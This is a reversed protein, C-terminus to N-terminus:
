ITSFSMFNWARKTAMASAKLLILYRKHRTHVTDQPSAAHQQQLLLVFIAISSWHWALGLSRRIFGSPWQTSHITDNRLFCRYDIVGTTRVVGDMVLSAFAKIRRRTLRHSPVWEAADAFRRVFALRIWVVSSRRGHFLVIHSHTNAHCERADLSASWNWLCASLLLFLRFLSSSSFFCHSIIHKREDAELHSRVRMGHMKMLTENRQQKAM